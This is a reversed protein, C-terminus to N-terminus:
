RDPSSGCRCIPTPQAASRSAGGAAASGDSDSPSTSLANVVMPDSAPLPEVASRLRSTPSSSLAAVSSSCRNKNPRSDPSSRCPASSPTITSATACAASTGTVRTRRATISLPDSPRAAVAASLPPASASFWM